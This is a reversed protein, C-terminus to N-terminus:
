YEGGLWNELFWDEKDLDLAWGVDSSTDVLAEVDATTLDDEFLGDGSSRKGVDLSMKWDSFAEAEGAMESGEGRTLREWLTHEIMPFVDVSTWEFGIGLAELDHSADSSAFTHWRLDWWEVSIEIFKLSAKNM